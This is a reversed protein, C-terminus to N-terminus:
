EAEDDTDVLIDDMDKRPINRKLNGRKENREQM